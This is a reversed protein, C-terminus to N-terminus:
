WANSESTGANDWGLDTYDGENGVKHGQIVVGKDQNNDPDFVSANSMFGGEFEVEVMETIPPNYIKKTKM